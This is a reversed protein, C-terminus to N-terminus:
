RNMLATLVDFEFDADLGNDLLADEFASMDGAQVAEEADDLVDQIVAEAEDATHGNSILSQKVRDM